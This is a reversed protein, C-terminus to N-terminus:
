VMNELRSVLHLSECSTKYTRLRDEWLIDVDGTLKCVHTVLGNIPKDAGGFGQAVIDGVFPYVMDTLRATLHLM